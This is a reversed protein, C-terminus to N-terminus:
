ERSASCARASEKPFHRDKAKEQQEKTPYPAPFPSVDRQAKDMAHDASLWGPTAGPPRVYYWEPKGNKDRVDTYCLRTGRAPRGVQRATPSPKDRIFIQERAIEPHPRPDYAGTYEVTICGRKRNSREQPAAKPIDCQIPGINHQRSELLQRGTEDKPPPSAAYARSVLFAPGDSSARRMLKGWVEVKFCVHGAATTPTWTLHVSKAEGPQLVLTESEAVKPWTSAGINLGRVLLRVSIEAPVKQNNVLPVSVTTPQGVRLPTPNVQFRKGDYYPSFAPPMFSVKVKKERRMTMEASQGVDVFGTIDTAFFTSVHSTRNPQVTATTIGQEDTPKEPQAITDAGGYSTLGSIHVRRGAVPRGKEDALRVTLTAVGEEPFYLFDSSITSHARSVVAPAIPEPPETSLAAAPVLEAIPKGADDRKADPTVWYLDIGSGHVSSGGRALYRIEIPLTRPGTMPVPVVYAQRNPGLGRDLDLYAFAESPIHGGHIANLAVRSQNLYVAAGNNSVTTFYYSGAKPLHVYGKWIVAVQPSRNPWWILQPGWRDPANGGQSGLLLFGKGAGFAIQPDIRTADPEKNAIPLRDDDLEYGGPLYYAGLLGTAATATTVWAAMTMATAVVIFAAGVM